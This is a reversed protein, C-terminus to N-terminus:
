EGELNLDVDTDSTLFVVLNDHGQAIMAGLEELVEKSPSIGKLLLDETLTSYGQLSWM